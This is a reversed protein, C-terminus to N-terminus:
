DRPALVVGLAPHDSLGRAIRDSGVETLGRTAVVDVAVSRVKLGHQALLPAWAFPRDSHRNLNMDGALTLTPAARYRDLLRGLNQVSAAYERSRPAGVSLHRVGANLHTQIHLHRGVRPVDLQAVLAWRDHGFKDGPVAASLPVM